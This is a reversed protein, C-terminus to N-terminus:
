PPRERRLYRDLGARRDPRIQRPFHKNGTITGAGLDASGAFEGILFTNGADDIAVGAINTSTSDIVRNWIADSCATGDCDEDGRSNCDEPKPLVQGDCASWSKGDAACTKVGSKCVGVDETGDPGDYCAKQAGPKCSCASAQNVEGDCDEDEPTSCDEQKPLVQGECAGFGSGDAKCTQTGAKCIGVGVTAAPGEYCARSQGPTCPGNDSGGGGSASGGGASMTSAGGAGGQGGDKSGGCGAVACMVFVCGLRWAHARM